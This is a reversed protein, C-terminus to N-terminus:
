LSELFSGFYFSTFSSKWDLPVLSLLIFVLQRVRTGLEGRFVACNVRVKGGLIVYEPSSMHPDGSRPIDETDSSILVTM